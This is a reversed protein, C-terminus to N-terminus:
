VATNDEEFIEMKYDEVPENQDQPLFLEHPTEEPDREETIKRQLTILNTKGPITYFFCGAERQINM